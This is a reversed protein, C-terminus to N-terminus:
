AEKRIVIWLGVEPNRVLDYPIAAAHLADEFKHLMEPSMNRKVLGRWKEAGEATAELQRGIEGRMRASGFGGGIYSRGGPALVRHVESFAAVLDEWFFISGRSVALNACNDPLPMREVDALITDGRQTLGAEALNARVIALMEESQDVFRVSLDGQQALAIGLHGGGCGIDLCVGESIGTYDLVQQAIVPYIPKFLTRARQDFEKANIKM